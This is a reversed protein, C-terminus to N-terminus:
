KKNILQRNLAASCSSSSELIPISSKGSDSFDPLFKSVFSETAQRTCWPWNRYIRCGGCPLASILLYSYFHGLVYQNTDPLCQKPTVLGWPQLKPKIKGDEPVRRSLTKAAAQRASLLLKDEKRIISLEEARRLVSIRAVDELFM